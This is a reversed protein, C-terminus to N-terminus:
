RLVLALKYRKARRGKGVTLRLTHRGATVPKSGGIVVTGRTARPTSAVFVGDDGSLRARLLRGAARAFRLTCTVGTDVVCTVSAKPRRHGRPRATGRLTVTPAPTSEPTPTETADPEPTGTETVPEDAPDAGTPTGTGGGGSAPTTFTRDSGTTTGEANSAVLRFHYTTAPALGAVPAQVSSPTAGGIPGAVPATTGYATTQGYEFHVDTTPSGHPNVTGLLTASELTVAGAGDTSVAPPAALTSFMRDTGAAVVSGNRLGVLRFHYTANPELGNVAQSAAVGASGAGADAVATM